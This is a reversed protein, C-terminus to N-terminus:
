PLAVGTPTPEKMARTRFDTPTDGTRSVFSSKDPEPAKQGGSTSKEAESIHSIIKQQEVVEERLMAEEHKRAVRRSWLYMVATAGLTLIMDFVALNSKERFRSIKTADANPRMWKYFATTAGGVWKGAADMGKPGFALMTTAAGAVVVARGAVMSYPTQKPEPKINEPDQPAIHFIRDIRESIPKRYHEIWGTVPTLLTGPISVLLWAAWSRGWDKPESKWISKSLPSNIPKEFKQSFWNIFRESWNRLREFYPNTGTQPSGEKPPMGEKAIFYSLAWVAVGMVTPWVIVDFAKNGFSRKRKDSVPQDPAEPTNKIETTNAM